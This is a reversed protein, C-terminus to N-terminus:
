EQYAPPADEQATGSVMDALALVPADTVTAVDAIKVGGKLLATALLFPLSFQAEVM